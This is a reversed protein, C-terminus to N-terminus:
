GIYAGVQILPEKASLEVARTHALDDHWRSCFQPPNAANTAAVDEKTFICVVKKLLRDYVASFSELDNRSTRQANGNFYLVAFRNVLTVTKGDREETLLREFLVEPNLYEFDAYTYTVQNISM